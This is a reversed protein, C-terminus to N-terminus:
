KEAQKTNQEKDFEALVGLFKVVVDYYKDDKLMKSCCEPMTVKCFTEIKTSATEKEKELDNEDKELDNEDKKLAIRRQEFDTRRRKLDDGRNEIALNSVLLKKYEEMPSLTQCIPVNSQLPTQLLSNESSEQGMMDFAFGDNESSPPQSMSGGDQARRVTLDAGFAHAKHGDKIIKQDSKLGDDKSSSSELKRKSAGGEHVAEKKNVELNHRAKKSHKNHYNYAQKNKLVVPTSCCECPRPYMSEKEM